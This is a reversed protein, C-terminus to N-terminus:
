FSRELTQFSRWASLAFLWQSFAVIKIDHEFSAIAPSNRM